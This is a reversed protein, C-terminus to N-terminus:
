HPRTQPHTQLFTHPLSFFVVSSISNSLSVDVEDDDEEEGTCM